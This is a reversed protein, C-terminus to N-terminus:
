SCLLSTILRYNRGRFRFLGLAQQLAIAVVHKIHRQQFPRTNSTLPLLRTREPMGPWVRRGRRRRGRLVEQRRRQSRPSSQNEHATNAGQLWGFVVAREGQFEEMEHAPKPVLNQGLVYFYLIKLWDFARHIMTSTNYKTLYLGLRQGIYKVSLLSLNGTLRKPRTQWRTKEQWTQQHIEAEPVNEGPSQAACWLLRGTQANRKEAKRQCGVALRFDWTDSGRILFSNFYFVMIILHEDVVYSMSSFLKGWYKYLSLGVLSPGTLASTLFVVSLM